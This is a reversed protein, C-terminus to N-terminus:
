TEGPVLMVSELLPTVGFKKGDITVTANKQNVVVKLRSVSASIREIFEDIEAKLKEDVDHEYKNLIKQYQTYAEVPRELKM